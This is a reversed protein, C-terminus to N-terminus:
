RLDLEATEGAVIDAMRPAADGISVAIPGPPLPGILWEGPSPSTLQRHGGLSINPLFAGLDFGSALRLHLLKSAADSADPISGEPALLRLRGAPGMPIDIDTDGEGDSVVGDRVEPGRGESWAVVAVSQGQPPLDFVFSIGGTVSSGGGGSLKTQVGGALTTGTGADVLRVRLKNRVSRPKLAILMDERSATVVADGNWPDLEGGRGLASVAYSGPADLYVAFTGDVGTEDSAMLETTMFIEQWAGSTDSEGLSTSFGNRPAGGQRVFRVTAGTVPEGTEEAVVRGSVHLEPIDLDLEVQPHAPPMEVDRTLRRGAWSLTLVHQGAAVGRLVYHGDVDTTTTESSTMFMATPDASGAPPLAMLGMAAGAVPEGANRVTGFLIGSVGFNMQVARGAVIDARASERGELAGPRDTKVVEVPGPPLGDIRYRGEADTTTRRDDDYGAQIGAGPMPLADSGTIILVQGELAGGPAMEVVLGEPPLAEPDVAPTTVRPYMDHSATLPFEGRVGDITFSGDDGSIADVGGRGLALRAGAIPKGTGAEVVRGSVSKGRELDIEVVAEEGAIVVVGDHIATASGPAWAAVEYVGPEVPSFRLSAPGGEVVEPRPAYLTRGGSRLEAGLGIVGASADPDRAHVLIAGAPKLEIELDTTGAIVHDKRAALHWDASVDIRARLEPDLGDCRFAGDAATEVECRVSGDAGHGSVVVKAKEGPTGEPLVVGAIAVGPKLVVDGVSALKDDEIVVGHAVSPRMGPATVEVAIRGAPVRALRLVGDKGSASAKPVLDYDDDNGPIVRARAGAVPLGAEDLARLEIRGGHKLTLAADVSPKAAIARVSAPAHMPHEVVVRWIVRQPMRPLAVRGSADTLGKWSEVAKTLEPWAPPDLPYRKWEPLIRVGAGALPAGDAGAVKLSIATAPHLRIISDLGAAKALRVEPPALWEPPAVIQVLDDGPGLAALVFRGDAESVAWRACEGLVADDGVVRVMIRPIPAGGAALIRGKASRGRKMVVDGGAELMTPTLAIPVFNEARVCPMPTAREVFSDEGTRWGVDVPVGMEDVFRLPARDAAAAAVCGFVFALCPVFRM